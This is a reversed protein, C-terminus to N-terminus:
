YGRVDEERGRVVEMGERRDRFMLEYMNDLRTDLELIAGDEVGLVACAYFWVEVGCAEDWIYGVGVDEEGVDGIESNVDLLIVKITAGSSVRWVADKDLIDQKFIHASCHHLVLLCFSCIIVNKTSLSTTRIHLKLIHINGTPPLLTATIKRHPSTRTSTKPYIENWNYVNFEKLHLYGYEM